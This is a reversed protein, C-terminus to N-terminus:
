QACHRGLFWPAICRVRLSIAPPSKDSCLRQCLPTWLSQFEDWPFKSEAAVHGLKVGIGLRPVGLWMCEGNEPKQPEGADMRVGRGGNCAAANYTSCCFCRPGKRVSSILDPVEESVELQNTPSRGVWRGSSYGRNSLESMGGGKEQTVIPAPTVQNFLNSKLWNAQFMYRRHANAKSFIKNM